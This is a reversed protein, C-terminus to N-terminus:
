KKIDRVTEEFGELWVHLEAEGIGLQYCALDRAAAYAHLSCDWRRGPGDYYASERFSLWALLAKNATQRFAFALVLERHEVSPRPMKPILPLSLDPLAGWGPCRPTSTQLLELLAPKNQKLVTVFAPDKCPPRVLLKTGDAELTHGRRAAEMYVEM